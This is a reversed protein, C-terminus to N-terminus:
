THELDNQLHYAKEQLQYFQKTEQAYKEFNLTVSSAAEEWKKCLLSFREIHEQLEMCEHCPAQQKDRLQLLASELETQLNGLQRRLSNREDGFMAAENQRQIRLENLENILSKNKMQLEEIKLRLESKLSECELNVKNKELIECQLQESLNEIKRNLQTKVSDIERLSKIHIENVKESLNEELKQKEEELADNHEM